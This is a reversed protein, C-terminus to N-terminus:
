SPNDLYKSVWHHNKGMMKAKKAYKTKQFNHKKFNHNYIYIYIFCLAAWTTSTIFFGSALAPSTLSTSEVVPNPLDEPPPCPLGRWYEQRSFGMSLPTQRVTLGYPRVTQCSQLSKADVCIYCLM